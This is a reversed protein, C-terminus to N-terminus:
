KEDGKNNQIISEIYDVLQKYEKGLLEGGKFAREVLEEGTGYFSGFKWKNNSRTWTIYRGSSLWNELVIYDLIDRIIANGCIEGGFVEANGTVRANEYVMADDFIWCNGEQSLNNESQVFGGKFGKKIISFNKLAEIRFLKVGDLEIIEDTLKYKM